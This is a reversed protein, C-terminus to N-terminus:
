TNHRRHHCHHRERERERAKKRPREEKSGRKGRGGESKGVVRIGRGGEGGGEKEGRSDQKMGRGEKNEGSVRRGRRQSQSLYYM